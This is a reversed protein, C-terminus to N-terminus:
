PKKGEQRKVSMYTGHTNRICYRITESLSDLAAVEKIKELRKLEEESVRVRIIKDRAM